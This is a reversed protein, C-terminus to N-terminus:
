IIDVTEILYLNAEYPRLKDSRNEYNSLMLRCNKGSCEKLIRKNILKSGLNCEVLYKKGGSKRLYIFLDKWKKHLVEFDGYILAESGKKLHLLNRYFSWVSDPDEMQKEVNWTEYDQDM